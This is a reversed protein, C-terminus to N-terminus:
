ILNKLITEVEEDSLVFDVNVFGIEPRIGDKNHFDSGCTTFKHNKEAFKRWKEVENFIQNKSDVYIYNAEIGDPNMSDVIKQIDEETLNDEHAYAVPHALVVKGGANRIIDAAEKPTVSKKRVYAPCSENMVAEIFEGKNPIHGFNKMLLKENEPNSIIDLSIHAKTVADIKDLEKINLQYGLEALKEGVEHLYIHRANRIQYLQSRFEQDNLNYQYGLVHIGVKETKTSIEVAPILTIGKNKAYQFLEESYAEITDHDSIAMYKVGNEYAMDIVQKPTFAGDSMTTHMHLDIKM